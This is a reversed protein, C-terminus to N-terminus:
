MTRSEQDVWICADSCYKADAPIPKRCEVNACHTSEYERRKHLWRAFRAIPSLQAM